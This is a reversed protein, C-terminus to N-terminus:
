IEPLYKYVTRYGLEKLNNFLVPHIIEEIDKLPREGFESDIQTAKLCWRPFASSLKQRKQNNFDDFIEFDASSAISGTDDNRSPKSSVISVNDDEPTQTPQESITPTETTELNKRKAARARAKALFSNKIEEPNETKEENKPDFRPVCFLGESEM